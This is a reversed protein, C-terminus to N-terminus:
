CWGDTTGPAIRVLTKTEGFLPAWVYIRAVIVDDSKLQAAVRYTGGDRPNYFWGDRWRNPGDPRLARIMTLGCVLRARLSPNPNRFDRDPGGDPDRPKYLWVVRGCLQGGCDYIRVAAKRDILWVGDPTAAMAPAPLGLSLAAGIILASLRLRSPARAPALDM